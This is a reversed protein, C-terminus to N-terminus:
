ILTKTPCKAHRADVRSSSISAETDNKLSPRPDAAYRPDIVGGFM